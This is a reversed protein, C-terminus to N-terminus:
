VDLGLVAGGVGQADSGAVGDMGGGAGIAAGEGRQDRGEDPGRDEGSAPVFRLTVGVLGVGGASGDLVELGGGIPGESGLDGCEFVAAGAFPRAAGQDVVYAGCDGFGGGM